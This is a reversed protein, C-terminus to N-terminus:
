AASKVAQYITTFARATEEDNWDGSHNDLMSVVLQAAIQKLQIEQDPTMM